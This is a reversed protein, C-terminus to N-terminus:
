GERRPEYKADPQPLRVTFVTRGPSSEFSIDGGHERALRRAIDLGLGTGQGAPKTTFFPEFIRDKISDPIGPGSDAISVLLDAGEFHASIEVQGRDGCAQIANNLLNFWIRNLAENRGTIELGEDIDLTLAIGRKTQNYYLDLLGRIEPALTIRTAEEDEGSRAYTRLASVVRVAKEVADESVRAARYSGIVGRLLALFDDRRPGAFAPALEAAQAALGLEVLDEAITEADAVGAAALSDTAERRLRRETGPEATVPRSPVVVQSRARALLGLEAPSLRSASLALADLGEGLAKSEFRASAAIAALPTNLEHAIGAMLGGLAALKESVLAKAQAEKLEEMAKALGANAAQLELNAGALDNTREWVKRELEANLARLDDEAHRREASQFSLSVATALMTALREDESDWDRESGVSELSMIGRVHPGLIVPADILSRVDHSDLYAASLGKTRPDTRVARATIMEGRGHAAAYGPFGSLDITDGSGHSSDAADFADLCTIRSSDASYTWVSARGVGALGCALETIGRLAAALDGSTLLDRVVLELVGENYGRLRREHTRLKEEAERRALGKWVGDMLLQIQLIDAEDYPDAKNAAGVVATIRDGSFVPVTMFRRLEVHGEPYGKKLPNPAAFDNVVVPKRQRVAEGWIGTSDLAYVTQPGAVRCAPMVDHSWSNLTFQRKEGDYLYVYGYGSDTLSLVEDLALDIIEQRSEARSQLIAVLSRLREEGKRLQAEARKRETIDVISAITGKFGSVESRLPAGAVLVERRRGQRDVLAAEYSSKEGRARKNHEYRVRERCDPAFFREYHIGVVDEEPGYGMFSRMVPNAYVTLDERDILWIGMPATEALTRYLMLSEGLAAEARKRETIDLLSVLLGDQLTVTSIIAVLEKGVATLLRSEFAEFPRGGPRAAERWRGELEERVAEDPYARSWIASVSGYDEMTYGLVSVFRRNYRLAEGGRTFIALPLPAEEFLTMFRGENRRSEDEVQRLKSVDVLTALLHGEVISAGILYYGKSGDRRRVLYEGAEVEAGSAQAKEVAAQWSESVTRRYAPDPYALSWWAEVDPVEALSYGIETTFRRNLAEFRGGMSVCALSIPAEEFFRRFLDDKRRFPRGLLELAARIRTGSGPGAM